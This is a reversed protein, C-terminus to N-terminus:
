RGVQNILEAKQNFMDGHDGILFGHVDQFDPFTLSLSLLTIPKLPSSPELNPSTDTPSPPFHCTPHLTLLLVSSLGYSLMPSPASPDLVSRPNLPLLMQSFHRDLYPLISM